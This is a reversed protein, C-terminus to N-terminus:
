IVGGADGRKLLAAQRAPACLALQPLELGLQATSRELAHDADAMGSPGSVAPRVLVVGMRMGGVPQRDHVVADDLVEALQALLQLLLARFESGLGIGLHDGM